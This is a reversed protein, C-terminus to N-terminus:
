ESERQQGWTSDVAVGREAHPASDAPTGLLETTDVGLSTSVQVLEAM